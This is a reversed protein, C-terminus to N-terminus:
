GLTRARSRVDDSPGHEAAFTMRPDTSQQSRSGLTRARSHAFKKMEDSAPTWQIRVLAFGMCFAVDAIAYVSGYVSIHRLDVLYGMIPMMSSDVMGIAFGVGFNPAILGYIDKAFPVQTRFAFPLSSRSLIDDLIFRGYPTRSFECMYRQDGGIDDRHFRVAVEGDQSGPARLYQNRHSLLHQRPPLGCQRIGPRRGDMEGDSDIVKLRPDAIIVPNQLALQWKRSCMTEMMWIPLAPEMMAIAMNAFCISGSMCGWIMLSQPSRCTRKLCDDKYIENSRCWVFTGDDDGQGICIRSEDSFVVNMWDDVTWWQKEKAWQLRTKKQKPTLSPKRKAKRYTFEMEKLRNRVTRDCVNVGTEECENRM